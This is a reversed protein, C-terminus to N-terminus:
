HLINDRRIHMELVGASLAVESCRAASQQTSVAECAQFLFSFDLVGAALSMEVRRAASQQTSVRRVERKGTKGIYDKTQM